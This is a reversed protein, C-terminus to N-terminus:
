SAAARPEGRTGSWNRLYLKAVSPRSISSDSADLTASGTAARGCSSDSAAARATADPLPGCAASTSASWVLTAACASERASVIVARRRAAPRTERPKPGAHVTHSCSQSTSM